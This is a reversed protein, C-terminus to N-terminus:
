VHCEPISLVFTHSKDAAQRCLKGAEISAPARGAANEVDGLASCPNREIGPRCVDFQRIEAEFEAIGDGAAAAEDPVSAVM